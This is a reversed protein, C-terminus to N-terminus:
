IISLFRKMELNLKIMDAPDRKGRSTVYECTGPILPFINKCAMIRGVVNEKGGGTNTASM